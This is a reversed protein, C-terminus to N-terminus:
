LEVGLNKDEAIDGSALPVDRLTPWPFAMGTGMLLCPVGLRDLGLPRVVNKFRFAFASLQGRPGAGPAPALVDAGQVPRGTAAPGPRRRPGGARGRRPRPARAAAGGPGRRRPRGDAGPGPGRARVPGRGRCTDDGREGTPPRRGARPPCGRPTPPLRM